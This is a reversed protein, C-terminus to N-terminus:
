TDQIWGEITASVERDAVGVTKQLRYIIAGDGIMSDGAVNGIYAICSTGTALFRQAITDISTGNNQLQTEGSDSGVAETTAKISYKALFFTKGAAPTISAVTVPAIASTVGTSFLLDGSLSKDRLFELDGLSAAAVTIFEWQNTVANFQLQQNATPLGGQVNKGGIPYSLKPDYSM